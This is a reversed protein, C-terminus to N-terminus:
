STRYCAPRETGTQGRAVEHLFVRLGTDNTRQHVGVPGQRTYMHYVTYMYTQSHMCHSSFKDASTRVQQVHNDWAPISVPCTERQVHLWDLIGLVISSIEYVASLSAYRGVLSTLALPQAWFEWRFTRSKVFLM